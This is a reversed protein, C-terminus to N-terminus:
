CEGEVQCGSARVLSYGALYLMQIKLLTRNDFAKNIYVCYGKASNCYFNRLLVTACNYCPVHKQACGFVLALTLAHFLSYM